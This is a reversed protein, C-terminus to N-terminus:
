GALSEEAAESGRSRATEPPAPNAVVFRLRAGIGGGEADLLDGAAGSLEEVDAGQNFATGVCRDALDPKHRIYSRSLLLVDVRGDRLAIETAESGLCGRGGSRALDVVQDVLKKQIQGNLRTAGEEAAAKVEAPTMGVHLSPQVLTRDALWAPAQQTVAAVTESPGGVILLGDGDAREVLLEMLQKTMREAGADLFRQAADTGTQGRVGSHTAGRKAIGVDTLDGVDTDARIGPLETVEGSLYEFVRAQRRDALAVLVVREQKLGRVYPAVRMGQEWRVLDPVPVAMTESHVVETPTAFGVWGKGPLFSDFDLEGKLLALADQFGGQDDPADQLLAREVEGVHRDLRRRWVTREAPDNAEGDLYISLVKDDQLRRYLEVLQDHTLM